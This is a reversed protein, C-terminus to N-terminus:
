LGPGYVENAISVIRVAMDKWGYTRLSDGFQRVRAQWQTRNSRWLWLRDILAHVDEPDSVLFSALEQPYREAIGASSSVIAPIGRCIAEQVNLGYSDYRVPSVLVDVAALFDPINEIFGLFRVRDSLGDAIVKKQWVNLGKGTGAVLLDVNWREDACLAKWAELVVDFGKRNDFGLAGVFAAVLRTDRVQFLRRADARAQSTVSRWNSEAGPYIMRIKQPDVGVREVLDRSTRHSNAIFVRALKATSLERRCENLKTWGEKARFWLPGDAPLHKSAHHVYHIWNIGPSLCNNGNVLVRAEPSCRTIKDAISRGWIDLLPRGLFNSGWPRPVPHLTVLPHKALEMSVRHCVLHVPTGQAVLYQSLELNAKDMGGRQSFEAAILVWPILRDQSSATSNREEVKPGASM